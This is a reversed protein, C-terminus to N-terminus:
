SESRGSKVQYPRFEYLPCFIAKCGRIKAAFNPNLYNDTFGMFHSCMANIAAKRTKKESCLYRVIPNLESM